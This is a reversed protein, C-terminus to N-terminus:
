VEGYLKRSEPSTQHHLPTQTINNYLLLGPLTRPLYEPVMNGPPPKRDELLGLVVAILCAWVQHREIMDRM